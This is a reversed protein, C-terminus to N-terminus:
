SISATLKNVRDPRGQNAQIISPKPSDTLNPSLSKDLVAALAVIDRAVANLAPMELVAM